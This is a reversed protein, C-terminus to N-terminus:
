WGRLDVEFREVITEGEVGHMVPHAAITPDCHSPDIRVRDGVKPFNEMSFTVHEDSCFWVRGGVIEPDGHDISLSKLGADCVAYGESVSIVTALLFVSLRQNQLASGKKAFGLLASIIRQANEEMVVVVIARAIQIEEVFLVEM